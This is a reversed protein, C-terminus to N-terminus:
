PTFQRIYGPPIPLRYVEQEYTVAINSLNLHIEAGYDLGKIYIDLPQSCEGAATWGEYTIEAIVRQEMDEIIRALYLRRDPAILLHEAGSGSKGQPAFSVWIGRNARDHRIETIQRGGITNRGMLWDGWNGQLFPEGIDNKVGFSRISGALYKRDLTNIVQYSQKDGAIALLPQGFPNTMVFKYSFPLSVQLFGNVGKKDFPTKYFLVLDGELSTGCAEDRATLADILLATEDAQDTELSGTWPKTACGTLYLLSFAIVLLPLLSSVVEKESRWHM